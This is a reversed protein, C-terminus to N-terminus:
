DEQDAYQLYGFTEGNGKCKHCKEQNPDNPHPYAKADFKTGRMVGQRQGTGKGTGHCFRCRIFEPSHDRPVFQPEGKVYTNVGRQKDTPNKPDSLYGVKRLRGINESPIKSPPPSHPVKLYGTSKLLGMAGLKKQQKPNM